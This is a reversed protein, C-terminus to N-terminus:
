LDVDKGDRAEEYKQVADTWAAFEEPGIRFVAPQENTCYMARDINELMIALMSDGAGGKTLEKRLRENETTLAEIRKNLQDIQHADSKCNALPDVPDNM